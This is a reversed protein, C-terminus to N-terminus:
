KVAPLVEPRDVLSGADARTHVRASRPERGQLILCLHTAEIACAAGRAGLHTMLADVVSRTLDEQLVLRRSLAAVLAELRGFGIIAGEPAYALHVVGYYPLLHHPCVAHFPLGTVTVTAGSHDPLADALLAAIDASRGALLNEQWLRAVRAPTEALDADLEVSLAALLARVADEAPGSRPAASM